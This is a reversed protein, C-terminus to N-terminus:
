YDIQDDDRRITDIIWERATGSTSIYIRGAQAVDTADTISIEETWSSGNTSTWVTWVGDGAGTGNNYYIQVYLEDTPVILTVGNGSLTINGNYSLRLKYEDTGVPNPYLRAIVTGDSTTIIGVEDTSAITILRYIAAMYVGDDSPTEISVYGEGSNLYWSESGELAITTYDDNSTTSDTITLACGNTPDGDTTSGTDGEFDCEYLYSPAGGAPWSEGDISAINAVAVGSVSSVSAAATGNITSVDALAVGPLTFVVVLFLLLIRM